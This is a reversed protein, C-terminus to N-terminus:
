RRDSSEQLPIAVRSLAAVSPKARVRRESTGPWWYQVSLEERMYENQIDPIHSTIQEKFSRTRLHLNIGILYAVFASAAFVVPKGAWNALDVMYRYIGTSYDASVSMARLSLWLGLLWVYGAALPARLERIGPLLSALM